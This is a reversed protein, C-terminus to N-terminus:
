AEGTGGKSESSLPNTLNHVPPPSDIMTGVLVHRGILVSGDVQAGLYSNPFFFFDKARTQANSAVVDIEHEM